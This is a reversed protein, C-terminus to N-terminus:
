MDRVGVVGVDCEFLGGDVEALVASSCPKGPDEESRQRQVFSFHGYPIAGLKFQELDPTALSSILSFFEALVPLSGHVPRVFLQM